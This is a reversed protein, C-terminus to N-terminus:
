VDEIVDIISDKDSDNEAGDYEFDENVMLDIYGFANRIAAKGAEIRRIAPELGDQTKLYAIVTEFVAIRAEFIDKYKQKLEETFEEPTGRRVIWWDEVISSFDLKTFYLIDIDIDFDSDAPKVDAFWECLTAAAAYSADIAFVKDHIEGLKPYEQLSYLCTYTGPFQNIGDLDLLRFVTQGGDMDVVGINEMKLDNVFVKRKATKNFNEVCTCLGDIFAVFEVTLGRMAQRDEEMRGYVDADARELAVEIRRDEPFVFMSFHIFDCEKLAAALSMVAFRIDFAVKDDDSIKFEKLVVRPHGKKTAYEFWSVTGYTGESFVKGVKLKDDNMYYVNERNSLQTLDVNVPKGGVVPPTAVFDQRQRKPAPESM